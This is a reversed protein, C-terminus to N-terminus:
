VQEGEFPANDQPARNITIGSGGGLDFLADQVADAPLMLEIAILRYSYIRSNTRHKPFDANIYAECLDAVQNRRRAKERRRSDRGAYSDRPLDIPHAVM